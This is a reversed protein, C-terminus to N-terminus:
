VTLKLISSRSLTVVKLAVNSERLVVELRHDLTALKLAQNVTHVSTVLVKRLLTITRKMISVLNKLEHFKILANQRHLSITATNM